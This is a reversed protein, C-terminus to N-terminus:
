RALIKNEKWTREVDSHEHYFCANGLYRSGMRGYKVRCTDASETGTPREPGDLLELLEKFTDIGCKHMVVSPRMFERVARKALWVAQHSNIGTLIIIFDSREVLRRLGGAGHRSIEGTHFELEHGAGCALKAFPTESRSLGGVLGIRM